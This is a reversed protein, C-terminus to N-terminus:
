TVRSMSRKLESRSSSAFFFGEGRDSVPEVVWALVAPLAALVQLLVANFRIAVGARDVAPVVLGAPDERCIVQGHGPALQFIVPQGLGQIIQINGLVPPRQIAAQDAGDVALYPLM